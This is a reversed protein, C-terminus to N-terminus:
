PSFWVLLSAQTGVVSFKFRRRGIFGEEVASFKWKCSNGM